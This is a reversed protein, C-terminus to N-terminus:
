LLNCGFGQLLAIHQYIVLLCPVFANDAESKDARIEKPVQNMRISFPM